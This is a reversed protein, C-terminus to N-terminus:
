EEPSAAEMVSQRNGLVTTAIGMEIADWLNHMFSEQPNREHAIYGKRFGKNEKINKEKVYITNNIWARIKDRTRLKDSHLMDVQLDVYAFSMTGTMQKKDGTMKVLMALNRGNVIQLNGIPITLSTASSIEMDGLTFDLYYPSTEDMLDFRMTGELEGEGMFVSNFKLSMIPDDAIRSSDNTLDTLTMYTEEFNLKGPKGTFQNIARYSILASTVQVTDIDIDWILKRLHAQPLMKVTSSDLKETSDRQIIIRPNRVSIKKVSILSDSVIDALDFGEVKFKPSYFNYSYLSANDRTGASTDLPVPQLGIGRLSLQKIESNLKMSDIRLKYNEGPFTFLLGEGTAKSDIFHRINRDHFFLSLKGKKVAQIPKGTAGLLRYQFGDIAFENIKLYQACSDLLPTFDMSTSRTFLSVYADRVYIDQAFAKNKKYSKYWQVGNAALGSIHIRDIHQASDSITLEAIDFNGAILDVDLDRIDVEGSPFESQLMQTLQSEVRNEMIPIAIIALIIVLTLIILVIFLIHYLRKM